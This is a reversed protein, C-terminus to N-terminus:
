QYNEINDSIEDATEKASEAAENGYETISDLENVAEINSEIQEQSEDTVENVKEAGDDLGEHVESHMHETADTKVEEATIEVASVMEQEIDLGKVGELTGEAEEVEDVVSEGQELAKTEFEKANETNNRVNELHNGMQM